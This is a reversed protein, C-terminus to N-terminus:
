NEAMGATQELEKTYFGTYMETNVPTLKGFLEILILLLRM